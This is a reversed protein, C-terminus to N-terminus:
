PKPHAAFFKWLIDDTTIGTTSNFDPNFPAQGSVNMPATYWTHVGGMLKYFKVETNGTCATGDKEFVATINGQADCLPANDGITACANASSWYDPGTVGCPDATPPPPPPAMMGGGGCSVLASIAALVCVATLIKATPWKRKNASCIRSAEKPSHNSMIAGSTTDYRQTTRNLAQGLRLRFSDM